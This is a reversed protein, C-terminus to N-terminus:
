NGEGSIANLLREPQLPKDLFHSVGLRRAQYKIDPELLASIMILPIKDNITKAERVFALGSEEGLMLDVIAVDLRKARKFKQLGEKFTSAFILSHGAERFVKRLIWGLDKENDVLLVRRRM